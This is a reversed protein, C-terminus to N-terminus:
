EGGGLKKQSGITGPGELKMPSFLLRLGGTQMLRRRAAAATMEEKEKAEASAAQQLQAEELDIQAQSKAPPRSSLGGM